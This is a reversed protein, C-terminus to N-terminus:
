FKVTRSVPVLPLSIRRKSPVFSFSCCRDHSLTLLVLLMFVGTRAAAISSPVGDLPLGQAAPLVGADVLLDRSPLGLVRVGELFSESTFTVKLCVWSLHSRVVNREGDGIAKEGDVGKSSPTKKRMTVTGADVDTLTLLNRIGDGHQLAGGLLQMYMIPERGERPLQSALFARRM